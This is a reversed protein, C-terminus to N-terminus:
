KKIENYIKQLMERETPTNLSYKLWKAAIAILAIVLIVLLITKKM